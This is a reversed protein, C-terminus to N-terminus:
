LRFLASRVRWGLGILLLFFPFFPFSRAPNQGATCGTSEEGSGEIADATDLSQGSLWGPSGFGGGVTGGGQSSPDDTTPQGTTGGGNGEGELSPIRSADEPLICGGVGAKLPACVLADGCVNELSEQDCPIHCISEQGAYSECFLTSCEEDTSCPAGPALSGPSRCIGNTENSSLRLCGLLPPCQPSVVLCKTECLGGFCFGSACEISNACASGDPVCGEKGIPLCYQKGDIFDKCEFGCPCTVCEETCFSILSGNTSEMTLCVNSDCEGDEECSTGLIAGTPASTNPICAGPEV